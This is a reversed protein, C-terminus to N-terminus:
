ANAKAERQQQRSRQRAAKAAEEAAIRADREQIHADYADVMQSTVRGPANGGDRHTIFAIVENRKEDSMTSRAGRPRMAMLIDTLETVDGSLAAYIARKERPTLDANVPTGDPMLYTFPVTTSDDDVALYTENSMDSTIVEAMKRM